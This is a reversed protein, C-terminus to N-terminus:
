QALAFGTLLRMFGWVIPDVFVVYILAASSALSALAAFVRVHGVNALIMPTIISGVLFGLYYGSMVFGTVAAPFGELTARIGVLSIQLGNGVMLLGLGLLLPWSNRVAAYM